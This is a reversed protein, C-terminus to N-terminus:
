RARFDAGLDFDLFGEGYEWLIVEAWFNSVRFLRFGM